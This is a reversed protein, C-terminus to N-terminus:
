GCTLDHASERDVIVLRSRGRWLLLDQDGLERVDRANGNFTRLTVCCQLLTLCSLCRDQICREIADDRDVVFTAHYLEIRGSLSSEAIM